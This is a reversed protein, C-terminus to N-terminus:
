EYEDEDIEEYDADDIDDPNYDILNTNNKQELM